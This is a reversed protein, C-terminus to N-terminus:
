CVNVYVKVGEKIAKAKALARISKITRGEKGIILGMDDKAACVNVRVITGDIEEEITVEDPNKVIQKILFEIFEAM